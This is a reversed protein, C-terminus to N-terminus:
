HINADKKPIFHFLSLFSIAHILRYTVWPKLPLLEPPFITCFAGSICLVTPHHSFVKLPKAM